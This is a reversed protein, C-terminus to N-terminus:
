FEPRGVSLSCRKFVERNAHAAKQLSTEPNAGDARRDLSVGAELLCGELEVRLSKLRAAEAESRDTGFRMVLPMLDKTCMRDVERAGPQDRYAYQVSMGDQAPFPGVVTIGKAEFCDLAAITSAWLAGASVPKDSWSMDMPVLKDDKLPAHGQLAEIGFAVGGAVMLTLVCVLLGVIPRRWERHAFRALLPM